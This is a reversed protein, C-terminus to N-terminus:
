LGRWCTALNTSLGQHIPQSIAGPSANYSNFRHVETILVKYFDGVGASNFYRVTARTLRQLNLHHAFKSVYNLRVAVEDTTSERVPLTDCRFFLPCDGKKERKKEQVPDIHGFEEIVDMGAQVGRKDMTDLSRAIHILQDPNNSLGAFRDADGATPM